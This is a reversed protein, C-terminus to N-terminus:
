RGLKEGLGMQEMISDAERRSEVSTVIVRLKAKRYNAPVAFDSAKYPTKSIKLTELRIGSANEADLSLLLRKKRSKSRAHKISKIVVGEAPEAHYFSTAMIVDYIQKPVGPFKAVWDDHSVNRYVSTKMTGVFEDKVKPFSELFPGKVLYGQEALYAATSLKCMVKDDNRFCYVQWDPAKCIIFYGFNKKKIKLAHPTFYLTLDGSSHHRQDVKWATKSSDRMGGDSAHAGTSVSQSTLALITCISLISVLLRPLIM